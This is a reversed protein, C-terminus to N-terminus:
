LSTPFIPFAIERLGKRLSQLSSIYHAAKIREEAIVITPDNDKNGDNDKTAATLKQFNFNYSM